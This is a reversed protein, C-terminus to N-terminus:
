PKDQAAYSAEQRISSSGSRQSETMGGYTPGRSVSSDGTNGGRYESQVMRIGHDPSNVEYRQAPSTPDLRTVGSDKVNSEYIKIGVENEKKYNSLDSKLNSIEQELELNRNQLVTIEERYGVIGGVVIGFIAWGSLPTYYFRLSYEVPSHYAGFTIYMTGVSEDEPKLISNVKNEEDFLIM